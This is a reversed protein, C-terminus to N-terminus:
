DGMDRKGTGLERRSTGYCICKDYLMWIFRGGEGQWGNSGALLENCSTKTTIKTHEKDTRRRLGCIIQLGYLLTLFLLSDQAGSESHGTFNHLEHADRISANDNDNDNDNDNNNNNAQMCSAALCFHACSYM